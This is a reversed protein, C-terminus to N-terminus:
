VQLKANHNCHVQNKIVKDKIEWFHDWPINNHEPDLRV